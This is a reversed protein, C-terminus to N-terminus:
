KVLPTVQQLHQLEELLENLLKEQKQHALLLDM